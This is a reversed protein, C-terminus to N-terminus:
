GSFELTFKSGQGPTSEAHVLGNHFAMVQEVINLGIGPRDVPYKSISMLPKFIDQLNEPDIGCGNDTVTLYVRNEGQRTEHWSKLEIIGEETFNSKDLRNEEIAEKANILLEEIAIQVAGKAMYLRPLTADLTTNIKIGQWDPRLGRKIFARTYDISLLVVQNLDDFEMQTQLRPIDFDTLRYVEDIRQMLSKLRSLQLTLNKDLNKEGLQRTLGGILSSLWENLRLGFHGIASLKQQAALKKLMQENEKQLRDREERIHYLEVAQKILIEKDESSVQKPIFRYIEGKNIAEIAAELDTYGTILIRISRPSIERAKALLSCGELKPMRQDSIIVAYEKSQMMELAKEPDDATDLSFNDELYIQLSELVMHDDDVLLIPYELYNLENERRDAM